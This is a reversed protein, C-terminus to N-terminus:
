RLDKLQERVWNSEPQLSFAKLFHKKARAPDSKKFYSGLSTHFHYSNPLKEEGRAFLEDVQTEDDLNYALHKYGSTYYPNLDVMVSLRDRALDRRGEYYSCIGFWGVAVPFYRSWECLYDLLQLREQKEGTGNFVMRSFNTWMLTESGPKIALEAALRSQEADGAESGAASLAEYKRWRPDGPDSAQLVELLQHLERESEGRWYAGTAYHMCILIENHVIGAEEAPALLVAPGSRSLSEERSRDRISASLRVIEAAIPAFGERALHRNLEEEGFLRRAALAYESRAEEPLIAVAPSLVWNLMKESIIVVNDWINASRSWRAFMRNSVTLDPYREHFQNIILRSFDQMYRDTAQWLLEQLVLPSNDQRDARERMRVADDHILEILASAFSDDPVAAVSAELCALADRTNGSRYLLYGLVADARPSDPSLSAGILWCAAARQFLMTWWNTDDWEMKEIFVLAVAGLFWAESSAPNRRLLEGLRRLAGLMVTLDAGEIDRHIAELEAETGADALLPLNKGEGMAERLGSAAPRLSLLLEKLTGDKLPFVKERGKGGKGELKFALTPPAGGILLPHLRRLSEDRGSIGGPAEGFFEAELAVMDKVIGVALHNLPSGSFELPLVKVTGDERCGFLVFTSVAGLVSFVLWRRIAM